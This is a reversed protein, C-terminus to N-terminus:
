NILAKMIDATIITVQKYNPLSKVRQLSKKAYLKRLESDTIMLKIKNSMDEIDYPDFYLAAYNCTEPMATTNSCVIPLGCAMAEVLTYAFNEFPSPFAMICANSYLHRMHEKSVKGLFIVEDELSLEKICIDISRNYAIYDRSGAIVLKPTFDISDVAIKYSRLLRIINKYPYLHSVCLIYDNNKLGNFGLGVDKINKYFFDDFGIHVVHAKKKNIHFRDIFMKKTFKSEFIIAKASHASAIIFFKNVYIKMKNMWSFNSYFDKFFPGITGIWLVVKIPSFIPGINGPCFLIDGKERLLYIPLAFQEWIVRTIVSFNCMRSLIIKNNLVLEKILSNNSEKSYIVVDIGELRNFEKIMHLVQTLSGGSPTFTLNIIVKL